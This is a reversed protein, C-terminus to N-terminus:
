NLRYQLHERWEQIQWHMPICSNELRDSRKVMDQELLFKM